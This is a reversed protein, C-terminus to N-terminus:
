GANARTTKVATHIDKQASKAADLGAKVLAKAEYAQSGWDPINEDDM